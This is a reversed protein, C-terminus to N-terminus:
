ETISWNIVDRNLAKLHNNCLSFIKSGYFGRNASLPSPHVGEIIIHKNENIFKKKKKANNGLLIFVVGETNNSIDSIIKDTLPSWLSAFSNSKGPLVTLASNLLLIKESKVWESIDGHTNEIGLDNKLEKFMNRLSPPIKHTKPVSFSLGVAQPVEKNNHIEERIYPDQGLLVVKTEEVDFYKFTEWIDCLNPYIKTKNKKWEKIKSIIIKYFDEKEYQKILKKWSKKVNRFDM